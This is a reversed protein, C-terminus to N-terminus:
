GTSKMGFAIGNVTLLLIQDIKQRREQASAPLGDIEKLFRVQLYNLPDVYPNRFRISDKLVGHFDLLQNQSSIKLVEEMARHYESVIQEHIDKRLSEDAVLSSYQGAIYLDTKALSIQLNHILSRFFSWKEYMEQLEKLGEAGHAKQYSVLAHGMGYWASIIYRSQVWSFVWPIARLQDFSKKDSRTAPRSGINTMKLVQIPTAQHYFDLFGPTEFVLKRYFGFSLNSLEELRSEWAPIHRDHEINNKSVLNTWVVATILQELNREAIVANSYKQAIVEGQETVKM